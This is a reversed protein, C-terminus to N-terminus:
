RFMFHLFWILVFPTFLSNIFQNNLKTKHLWMYQLLRFQTECLINGCSLFRSVHNSLLVWSRQFKNLLNRFAFENYLQWHASYLESSICIFIIASSRFIQLGILNFFLCPIASTLRFFIILYLGKYTYLYLIYSHSSVNFM